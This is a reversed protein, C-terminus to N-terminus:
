RLSSHSPWLVKDRVAIDSCTQQVGCISIHRDTCHWAKCGMTAVGGKLVEQLWLEASDGRTHTILARVVVPAGAARREQGAPGPGPCPRTGQVGLALALMCALLRAM